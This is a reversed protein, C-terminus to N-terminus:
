ANDSLSHCYRIVGPRKNPCFPNIYCVSSDSNRRLGPVHLLLQIVDYFCFYVKTKKRKLRERCLFTVGAKFVFVVNEFEASKKVKGLYDTVNVWEVTGYM